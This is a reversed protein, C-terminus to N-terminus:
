HSFKTVYELDWNGSLIKNGEYGCVYCLKQWGGGKTALHGEIKEPDIFIIEQKRPAKNGYFVSSYLDTRFKRAQLFKEKALKLLGKRLFSFKNMMIM